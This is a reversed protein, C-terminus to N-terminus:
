IFIIWWNCVCYIVLLSIYHSSIFMNDKYFSKHYGYMVMCLHIMLSKWWIFLVTVELQRFYIFLYWVPKFDYWIFQIHIIYQPNKNLTTKLDVMTKLNIFISSIIHKITSENIQYANMFVYFIFCWSYFNFYM